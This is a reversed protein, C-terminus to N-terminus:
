YYILWTVDLFFQGLYTVLSSVSAYLFSFSNAEPLPKDEFPKRQTLLCTLDYKTMFYNPRHIDLQKEVQDTKKMVGCALRRTATDNTTHKLPLM